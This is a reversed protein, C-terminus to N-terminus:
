IKIKRQAKTPEVELDTLYLFGALIEDNKIDLAKRVKPEFIYHPSKLM